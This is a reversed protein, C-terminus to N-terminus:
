SSITPFGSGTSTPTTKGTSIYGGRAGPQLYFNSGCYSSKKKSSGKKKKPSKTIAM